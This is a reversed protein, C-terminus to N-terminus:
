DIEEFYFGLTEAIEEAEIQEDENEFTLNENIVEQTEADIIRYRM